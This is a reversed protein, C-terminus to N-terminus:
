LEDAKCVSIFAVYNTTIDRRKFYRTEALNRKIRRRPIPLSGQNHCYIPHSKSCVMWHQWVKMRNHAKMQVRDTTNVKISKLILMISFYILYFIFLSM